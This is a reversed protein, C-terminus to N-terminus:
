PPGQHSTLDSLDSPPSCGELRQHLLGALRADAADEDSEDLSCGHRGVVFGEGGLPGSRDGGVQPGESELAGVGNAAVAHGLLGARLCSPNADGHFVAGLLRM